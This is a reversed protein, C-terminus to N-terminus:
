VSINVTFVGNDFTATVNPDAPIFTVASSTFDTVYRIQRIRERPRFFMFRGADYARRMDELTTVGSVCEMPMTSTDVVSGVAAKFQESTEITPTGIVSIVFTHIGVVQTVVYGDDYIIFPYTNWDFADIQEDFPAGYSGVGNNPCTYSDGDFVVLLTDATISNVSLQGAYSGHGDDATTVSEDCIETSSGPTYSWGNDCRNLKEATITDGTQWNIPTYAM